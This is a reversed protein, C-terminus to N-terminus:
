GVITCGAGNIENGFKDFFSVFSFSTLINRAGEDVGENQNGNNGHDGNEVDSQPNDDDDDGIVFTVEAVLILKTKEYILSIKLNLIM